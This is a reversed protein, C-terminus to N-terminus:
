TTPFSRDRSAIDSLLSVQLPM